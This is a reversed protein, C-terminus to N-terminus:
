TTPTWPGVGAVRGASIRIVHGPPPNEFSPFRVGPGLYVEALQQLLEPGGGEVLRATGYVVLYHDLGVENRGEAEISVAVRPDLEINRLKRGQGLHACVIEDGDVGVWVISVQPSGDPDVTVLHALRGAGL